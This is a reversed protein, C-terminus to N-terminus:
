TPFLCLFRSGHGVISEIKLEGEHRLLVHKAIALGLGTGGSERSRDRDVRYFRETIRNIHQPAIGIGTDAVEFIAHNDQKYWRITINGKAPTYNVANFIINSFLSRLENELGSIKLTADIELSFHHKKTNSLVEAEHVIQKLLHSVDILKFKEEDPSDGELRSLLLLDEVLKQMRFAQAQMQEFIKKQSANKSQDLLTELYGQLVTLPTRLEHSVNAVFDQRVRELLNLRNEIEKETLHIM